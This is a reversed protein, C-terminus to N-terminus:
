FRVRKRAVVWAAQLGSWWLQSDPKGNAQRDFLALITDAQLGSWGLRESAAGCSLILSPIQRVILYHKVRVRKSGVVWAEQLSSWLKANSDTNAQRAFLALGTDAQASWELRESAAKSSLILSAM